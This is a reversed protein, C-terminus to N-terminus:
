AGGYLEARLAPANQDIWRQLGIEKTVFALNEFSDGLVGPLVQYVCDDYDDDGWHLSRLLRHHGDINEATGTMHGLETWKAADFTAAICHQVAVLVKGPTADPLMGATQMGALRPDPGFRPVPSVMGLTERETRRTTARTS